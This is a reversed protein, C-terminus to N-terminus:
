AKRLRKVNAKVRRSVPHLSRHVTRMARQAAQASPLQLAAATGLAPLASAALMDKYLVWWCEQMAQMKELVMREAELWTALPWPQTSQFMALRRSVVEPAGVAIDMSRAWLAFWNKMTPFPLSRCERQVSLARAKGAAAAQGEPRRTKFGRKM